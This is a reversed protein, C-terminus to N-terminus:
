ASKNYSSSVTRESFLVASTTCCFMLAVTVVSCASSHVFLNIPVFRMQKFAESNRLILESHLVESSIADNGQPSSAAILLDFLTLLQVVDFLLISLFYFCM